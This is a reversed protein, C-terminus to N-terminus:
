GRLAKAVSEVALGISGITTMLVFWVIPLLILAVVASAAVYGALLLGSASPLGYWIAMGVGISSLVSIIASATMLFIAIGRSHGAMFCLLVFVVIWITLM